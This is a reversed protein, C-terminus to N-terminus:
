TRAVSRYRRGRAFLVGAGLLAAILSGFLVALKVEDQREGAFSLDGILLSVTFGIGGLIGVGVVDWWSLGKQLSARTFTAVAWTAVVIGLPKGIVLGLTVGQAVPDQAATSILTPNIAVGAAFLAFIPVAFGASIPRWTHEWREVMPTREGPRAIAPVVMGLAVGALTAHVGSAHLFAWTAFALPFLIWPSTVRKRLLVAFIVVGVIAVALAGLHLSATYFIAIIIIALLDDVVALTLLFARLATPLSRGVVGLVALAFAIDTATPIAWGDLAGQPHTANIAIYIAAPAVMGGIAAVTPVIATSPKRLQGAVLERKLELGVVFFFIALLGDKAWDELSLNLHLAEPGITINKVTEYSEAWPSNAWVLGIAAGVMLLLGGMRETRLADALSRESSPTLRSFLSRNRPRANM